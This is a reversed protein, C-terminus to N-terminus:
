PQRRYVRASVGAGARHQRQGPVTSSAPSHLDGGHFRLPLGKNFLAGRRPAPRAVNRCRHHVCPALLASHPRGGRHWGRKGALEASKSGERSSGAMGERQAGGRRELCLALWVAPPQLSSGPTPLHARGGHRPAAASADSPPPVALSEQRSRCRRERWGQRHQEDCLHCHAELPPLYVRAATCSRIRKPTTLSSCCSSAATATYHALPRRLVLGGRGKCHPMDM